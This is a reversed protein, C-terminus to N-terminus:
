SLGLAARLDDLDLGVSALKDAVTPEPHPTPNEIETQVEAWTPAAQSEDLWELDAFDDGSLAWEAGPRLTVLARRVKMHTTESINELM